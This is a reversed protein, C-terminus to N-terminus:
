NLRTSKRDTRKLRGRGFFLVKESSLAPAPYNSHPAISILFHQPTFSRPAYIGGNLRDSPLPLVMSGFRGKCNDTDKKTEEEYEKDRRCLSCIFRRVKVPSELERFAM